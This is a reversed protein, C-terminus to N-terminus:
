ESQVNTNDYSTAHIVKLNGLGVKEVYSTSRGLVPTGIRAKPAYKNITPEPATPEPTETVEPEAKPRQRKPPQNDM